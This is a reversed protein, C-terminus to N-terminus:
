PVPEKVSDEWVSEPAIDIDDNWVLTGCEAHVLKFFAEDKLAAWFPDQLLPHCDYVGVVGNRFVVDVKYDARPTARVVTQYSTM